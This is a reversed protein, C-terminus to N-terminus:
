FLERKAFPDLLTEPVAAAVRLWNVSHVFNGSV